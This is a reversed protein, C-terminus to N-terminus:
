LNESWCLVILFLVGSSNWSWYTWNKSRKYKKYVALVSFTSARLIHCNNHVKLLPTGESTGSVVLVKFHTESDTYLCHVYRCRWQFFFHSYMYDWVSCPPTHTHSCHISVSEEWLWTWSVWPLTLHHNEHQKTTSVKLHVTCTARMSSKWTHPSCFLIM